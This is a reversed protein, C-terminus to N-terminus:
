KYIGEREAEEGEWSQPTAWPSAATGASPVWCIGAQVKIDGPAASRAPQSSGDPVATKHQQGPEVGRQVPLTPAVLTTKPLYLTVQHPLWSFKPCM